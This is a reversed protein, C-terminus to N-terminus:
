AASLAFRLRLEGLGDALYRAATEASIEMRVAVGRVTHEREGALGYRLRVAEAHLPEVFQLHWLAAEVQATNPAADQPGEYLPTGYVDGVPVAIPVTGYVDGVPVAIPVGSSVLLADQESVGSWDDVFQVVEDNGARVDGISTRDTEWACGVGGVGLEYDDVSSLSSDGPEIQSGPSEVEDNAPTALLVAASNPSM